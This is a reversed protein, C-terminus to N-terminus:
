IVIEFAEKPFTNMKRLREGAERCTKILKDLRERSISDGTDLRECNGASEVVFLSGAAICVRPFGAALYGAPSYEWSLAAFDVIEFVDPEVERATIRIGRKVPEKKQQKSTAYQDPALDFRERFAIFPDKGQIKIECIDNDGFIYLVEGIDGRSAQEYDQNMVVMDGVKAENKKAENKKSM